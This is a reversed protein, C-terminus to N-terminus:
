GWDLFNISGRLMASVLGSEDSSLCHHFWRHRSVPLFNLVMSYLPKEEPRNWPMVGPSGFVWASSTHPLSNPLGEFGQFLDQNFLLFYWFIPFKLALRLFMVLDISTFRVFNMSDPDIAHGRELGSKRAFTANHPPIRGKVNEYHVPKDIPKRVWVM